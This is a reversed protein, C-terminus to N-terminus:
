VHLVHDGLAPADAPERAECPSRGGDVSGGFLEFKAAELDASASSHSELTTPAARSGGMGLQRRVASAIRIPRTSPCRAARRGRYGCRRAPTTTPSASTSAM